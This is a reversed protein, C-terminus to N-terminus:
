TFRGLPSVSLLLCSRTMGALVSFFSQIDLATKSLIMGLLFLWPRVSWKTVRASGSPGPDTPPGM